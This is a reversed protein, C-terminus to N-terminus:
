FGRHDGGRDNHGHDNQSYHQGGYNGRDYGHNQNGWNGRNNDNGRDSGHNQNGWGGRNQQYQGYGGQNRNYQQGGWGGRNEYRQQEPARYGGLNYRDANAYGQYRNGYSNWDRRENGGFRSRYYDDRMYPRASRVEYRRATRWDYDHYRGPLYAASTWSGGDNYYYCQEAVSYYADVEPLYYYDNDYAVPDSEQYVPQQIVPGTGYHFGLHVGIQASANNYIFGSLVIASLLILKKM